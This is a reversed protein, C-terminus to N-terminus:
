FGSGPLQLFEEEEKTSIRGLIANRHPFRGFRRIIERHRVAYALFDKFTPKQKKSVEGVLQEVLSVCQDQYELSESHELPMYWFLRQIPLLLRDKEKAIGKLCVSRAIHDYAFSQPTGRYINRSFQDTVLILALVGQVSVEWERLQGAAADSLTAEFRGRIESDTTDCKSWWLQSYTKDFISREPNEGFWFQLVSDPTERGVLGAVQNVM